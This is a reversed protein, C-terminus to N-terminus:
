RNAASGQRRCVPCTSVGCSCRQAWINASCPVSTALRILHVNSAVATPTSAPVPVAIKRRRSSQPTAAMTPAGQRSSQSGTPNTTAWRRTRKRAGSASPCPVSLTMSATWWREPRMARITAGTLSAAVTTVIATPPDTPLSPGAACIPAESADPRDDSRRNLRRSRRLTTIQPIPAPKAVTNPVGIAPAIKPRSTRTRPESMYSTSYGDKTAPMM